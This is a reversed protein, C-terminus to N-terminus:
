RSAIAAFCTQGRRTLLECVQRAKNEAFPGFRARYFLHGDVGQFPAIIRAAQGLIDVAREAYAALELKATMEDDYAGIQITWDGGASPQAVPEGGSTSADVSDARGPAVDRPRPKVTAAVGPDLAAMMMRPKPQPTPVSGRLLLAALPEAGPSSKAVHSPVAASPSLSAMVVTTAKPPPPAAAPRASQASVILDAGAGIADYVPDPRSEAADEDEGSVPAAPMRLTQVNPPSATKDSNGFQFGAIVPKAQSNEALTQWPVNARAVLQPNRRIEAFTDDLLRMMEADRRRATTGGMVVGIIHVGNRVVSSVLNFGSAGTYGTKIGDAGQYRGILNDHTFHTLGRYSFSYTSFYHFYQPFDYALHHALIALDGATTIQLPDPLGSANHYFTHTMGLARAKATMMEAFHAETGGIAEAIVVAVDNASLVVIAKIATDASICTGPRLNLKTPQQVAAHESTCLPTDLTMQGSKLQEFLLYLTMMKTLSAPHRLADANRSYLAKGTEGDVILAADKEPDTLRFVPRTPQWYRHRHISANAAGFSLSAALCAATAVWLYLVARKFAGVARPRELM